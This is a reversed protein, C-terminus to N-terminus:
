RCLVSNKQFYGGALPVAQRVAVYGLNGTAAARFEHEIGVGMARFVQDGAAPGVEYGTAGTKRLAFYGFHCFIGQGQRFLDPRLHILSM